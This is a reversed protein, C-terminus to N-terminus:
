EFAYGPNLSHSVRSGVSTASRGTSIEESFILVHYIVGARAEGRRSEPM